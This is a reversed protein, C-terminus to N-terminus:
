ACTWMDPAGSILVSVSLFHLFLLTLNCSSFAVPILLLVVDSTGSANEYWESPGAQNKEKERERKREKERQKDSSVHTTSDPHHTM